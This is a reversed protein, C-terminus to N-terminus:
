NPWSHAGLNANRAQTIFNKGAQTIEYKGTGQDFLILFNDTLYKAWLGFSYQSDKPQVSLFQNYFAIAQNPDLPNKVLDELFRFQSGYITAGVYKLFFHSALNTADQKESSLSQIAVKITEAQEPTLNSAVEQSHM